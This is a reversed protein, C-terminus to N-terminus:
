SPLKPSPVHDNETVQTCPFFHTFTPGLQNCASTQLQETYGSPEASVMLYKGGQSSGSRKPGTLCSSPTIVKQPSELTLSKAKNGM